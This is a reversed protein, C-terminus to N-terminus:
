GYYVGLWVWVAAQAAYFAIFMLAIKWAEMRTLPTLELEEDNM